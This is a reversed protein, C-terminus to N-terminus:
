LYDFTKDKNSIIFPEMQPWEISVAPDDYRIGAEYGKHYFESMQYFLCVSDELTVFGHAFGRPIYLSKYEKPSLYFGQWKLYTDSEKRIDIIVDFVSGSICTVIKAEYYPERQYHMGRLTGKKENYSYNCQRCEFEIGIEKLENQCFSRAFFGRNDRIQEPTILYVGELRGKEFIM